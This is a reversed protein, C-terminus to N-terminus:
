DFKLKVEVKKEEALTNISKKYEKICKKIQQQRKNLNNLQEQPSKNSNLLQITEQLTVLTMDIVRINKEHINQVEQTSPNYQKQKEAITLLKEIGDSLIKLAEEKTSANSVSAMFDTSFGQTEKEVSMEFTIYSELDIKVPDSSCGACILMLTVIAIALFKKKM